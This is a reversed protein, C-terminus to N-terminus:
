FQVKASTEADDLTVQIVVTYNEKNEETLEFLLSIDEVNDVDNKDGTCQTYNCISSVIDDENLGASITVEYNFIVNAM